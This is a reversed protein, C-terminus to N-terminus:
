SAAKYADVVATPIRGREGVDYGNEMAWSRIDSTSAGAVKGTTRRSRARGRGRGSSRAKRAYGVYRGVSDRVEKAHKKCVDLEYTAGDLGFTLTEVGETEGEHLDCILLYRVKQAM